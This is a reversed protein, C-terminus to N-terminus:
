ECLMVADVTSGFHCAVVEDVRGYEQGITERRVVVDLIFVKRSTCLSLFKQQAPYGNLDSLYGPMRGYAHDCEDKRVAGLGEGHISSTKAFVRPEDIFADLLWPKIAPCTADVDEFHRLLVKALIRYEVLGNEEIAHVSKDVYLLPDLVQSDGSRVERLQRLTM